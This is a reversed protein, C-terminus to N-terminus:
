KQKIKLADVKLKWALNLHVLIVEGKNFWNDDYSLVM